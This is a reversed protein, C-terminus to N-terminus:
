ASEAAETEGEEVVGDDAEDAAGAEEEEPLLDDAEVLMQEAIYTAIEFRGEVRSSSVSYDDDDEQFYFDLRYAGAEDHVTFSGKPEGQDAAIGLVGLDEFRGVLKDAADQDAAAGNLRWDGEGDVRELTWGSRSSVSSLGGLPRLLKKDLWQSADAPAEYNSFDISYVEDAGDARAHM